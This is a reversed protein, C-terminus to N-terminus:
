SCMRSSASISKRYLRCVISYMINIARFNVIYYLFKLDRNCLVQLFMCKLRSAFKGQEKLDNIQATKTEVQDGLRSAAQLGALSEELKKNLRAIEELLITNQQKQEECKRRIKETATQIDREKDSIHSKRM